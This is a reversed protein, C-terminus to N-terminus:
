FRLFVIFFVFITSIPLILLFFSLFTCVIIVISLNSLFLRFCALYYYRIERTRRRRIRQGFWFQLRSEDRERGKRGIPLGSQMEPLERHVCM